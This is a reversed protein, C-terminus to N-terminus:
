GGLDKRMHVRLEDRSVEVYGLHRYLSVNETLLAHTKLEIAGAGRESALEEALTLLARGIGKGQHEPHVAVNLLSADAEAFAMLLGGIVEGGGCVVVWAPHVLIEQAYDAELPPLHDLGPRGAYASYAAEMCQQLGAGDEPGAM